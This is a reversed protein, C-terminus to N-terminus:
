YLALEVEEPIELDRARLDIVLVAQGAEAAVEYFSWVKPLADRLHRLQKQLYGAFRPDRDPAAIRNIAIEPTTGLKRRAIKLHRRIMEPTSSTMFLAPPYELEDGPLEVELLSMSHAENESLELRETGQTEGANHLALATAQVGVYDYDDPRDFWYGRARPGVLESEHKAILPQLQELEPPSIRYFELGM